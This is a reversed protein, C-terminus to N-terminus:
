GPGPTSMKTNQIKTVKGRKTIVKTETKAKKKKIM